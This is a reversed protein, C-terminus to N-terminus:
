QLKDDGALLEKWTINRAVNDTVKDNFEYTCNRVTGKNRMTNPNSAVTGTGTNIFYLPKRGGETFNSM